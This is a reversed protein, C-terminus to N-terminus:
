GFNWISTVTTNTGIIEVEQNGDIFPVIITRDRDTKTEKYNTEEGDVLLFFRDDSDGIKSDVLERPIIVTLKGDNTTSFRVLLSKSALLFKSNLVKGGTILCKVSFDTNTVKLMKEEPATYIALLIIGTLVIMGVIIAVTLSDM